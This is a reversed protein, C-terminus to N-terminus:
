KTWKLRYFSALKPDTFEFGVYNIETKSFVDYKSPHWYWEFDQNLHLGAQLLENKYGIAEIANCEIKVQTTM